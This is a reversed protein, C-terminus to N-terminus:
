FTNKFNEAGFKQYKFSQNIIFLNEQVRTLSSYIKIDFEKMVEISKQDKPIVIIVNRAEWGKFSHITSMKLYPTNIRFYRKKIQRHFPNMSFIDMIRYGNGFQKKIYDRLEIGEKHTNVLIVVDSIKMSLKKVLHQIVKYTENKTEAFDKVNRWHSQCDSPLLSLQKEDPISIEPNEEKDNFDELFAKSFNNIIKIQELPLRIGQNLVGNLVGWRGKGVWNLERKYINQKKDVAFLIENNKTLFSCLYKYWEEEFDNGEDILIADYKLYNSNNERHSILNKRHQQINEEDTGDFPFPIEHTLAYRKCFGDFHMINIKNWWFKARAKNIQKKIYHRLTINFCIVLVKKDQAALNAARMALVLTKGSGAVGALKQKSNPKPYIYRKQKTNFSLYIGDDIKHRPPMIWNHFKKFWEKGMTTKNHSKLLTLLPIIHEISNTTELVDKGFVKCKFPDYPGIIQKAEKTTSNHFYLGIKILNFKKKNQYIEEDIEPLGEFLLNRYEEVQNIPNSLLIEKGSKTTTIRHIKKGKGTTSTNCRYKEPVWDKVEIIMIGGTEHAIVIDPSKGVGGWDLETKLFIKWSKPLNKDLYEALFREGPLLPQKLENLAKWSPFIRDITTM